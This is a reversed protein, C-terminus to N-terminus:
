DRVAVESAHGGATHVLEDLREADVRQGLRLHRAHGRIEVLVDVLEAVAGEPVGPREREDGGVGEGHFDAFAPPHDVGDHEDGGTDVGVPAAFDQAHPDGGVLGGRGPVLEEGVEDGAAEGADAEDG